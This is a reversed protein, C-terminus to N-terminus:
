LVVFCSQKVCLFLPPLPLGAIFIVFLLGPIKNIILLVTHRCETISPFCCCLLHSCLKYLSAALCASLFILLLIFGPDLCKARAPTSHMTHEGGHYAGELIECIMETVLVSIQWKQLLLYNIETWIEINLYNIVYNSHMRNALVSWFVSWLNLIYLAKIKCISPYM